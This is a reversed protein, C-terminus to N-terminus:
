RCHVASCCLCSIQAAFSFLVFLVDFHYTLRDLLMFASCRRSAACSFLVDFYPLVLMVEFPLHLAQVAGVACELYCMLAMAVLPQVAVEFGCLQM